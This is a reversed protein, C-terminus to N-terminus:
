RQTAFPMRGKGKYGDLLQYFLESKRARVGFQVGM